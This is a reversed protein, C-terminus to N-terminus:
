SLQIMWLTLSIFLAALPSAIASALSESSETTPVDMPHGGDPKAATHEEAKAATTEGAAAAPPATADAAAPPPPPDQLADGRLDHGDCVEGIPCGNCSLSILLLGLLCLTKMM